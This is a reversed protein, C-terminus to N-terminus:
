NQRVRRRERPQAAGYGYFPNEYCTGGNGSIAQRCQWLNSFYCNTAGGRSGYQACWPYVPYSQASAAAADLAFAAGLAALALFASRM